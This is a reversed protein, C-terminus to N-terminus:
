YQISFFFMKTTKMNLNMMFLMKILVKQKKSENNDETIFNSKNYHSIKIRRFRKYTSVQKM